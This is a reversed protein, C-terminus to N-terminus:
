RCSWQPGLGGSPGPTRVPSPQEEMVGSSPSWTARPALWSSALAGHVPGPLHVARPLRADSRRCSLSAAPPPCRGGWQGAQSM